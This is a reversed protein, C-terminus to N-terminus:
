FMSLLQKLKTEAVKLNYEFNILRTESDVYSEQAQHLELSTTQGLRLRDISIALNEKALATNSIEINLLQKQYDYSTLTNQLESNIQLKTNELVYETSSLQLQATKIQRQTNGSQYIPISLTGGIQPGYTQNSLVTGAINNSKLFNYGANLSLRPLLNTKFEKLSLKDIEVQKQSSLINTNNTYLKSTLDKVDPIYNLPISDTVEFPTEADRALLQNLNRKSAIIVAKQNISNEKNVNLDIQAQLLNTKPSLGARFSTELINVIVENASIVEEISVLQQKQRVVDYYAVIVEYETQLVQQRFQIEGLSQIENLKNKTVFMKGGDFLTWNLAVGSNLSNSRANSFKNETGTILKQDINTVSNNDTVTANVVPLMGANGPTNNVRSISASNIAVLIDYNNKLAISVADDSNILQQSWSVNLTVAFLFICGFFKLM